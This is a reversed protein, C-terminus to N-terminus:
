MSESLEASLKPTAGQCSCVFAAVRNAWAHTTSLPLNNLTGLTLAATFSDGAGVTDAISTAIGSLDSRAGERDLLLSGASGRTLAVLRYSYREMLEALLSDDTGELKLLSAIIPLEDENCKLVNALSLSDLVVSETWFPPRLNVDFIRLCETPTSQVFRRIVTQSAESRQGLTGFCVANTHRALQALNDNWQLNDWATDVAFEYSAHGAEDVQVLVQGTPQALQTVCSADVGHATIEEIAREGLTDRGVASVMYIQASSQALGAANCAFNAPAGGFRPGDPFVDWLVEGLGVIHPCQDQLRMTMAGGGLDREIDELSVGKTEPVFLKVWLLRRVM